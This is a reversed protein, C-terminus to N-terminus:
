FSTVHHIGYEAIKRWHTMMEVQTVTAKPLIVNNLM